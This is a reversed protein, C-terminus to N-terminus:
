LWRWLGAPIGILWGHLWTAGLWLATGGLWAILGAAPLGALRPIFPTRREWMAWSEGVLRMKKNDQMLAGLLALLGIALSLVIVRPVPSVLVHALSWLAFSWMMPHRTVAYIGKPKQRALQAARPGPMAPNGQFSGILLVSAALMIASAIGWALDQQGNWLPLDGAPVARFAFIMWVFTALAVASYLGVFGGEGLRAVLPKRLPHSLAFHTGIFSLSAAILVTLQDNM